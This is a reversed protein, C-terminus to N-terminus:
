PQSPKEFNEIRKRIAILLNVVDTENCPFKKIIRNEGTMLPDLWNSPILESAKEKKAM